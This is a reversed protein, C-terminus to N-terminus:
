PIDTVDPPMADNVQGRQRRRHFLWITWLGALITLEATLLSVCAGMIGRSPILFLGVCAVVVLGLVFPATQQKHLGSALLLMRFSNRIYYLPILWILVSFVPVAERYERGLVGVIVHEGLLTGLVACCLGLLLMLGRLSRGVREFQAPRRGFCHSLVPFFAHPLLAGATGLMLVIKFPAAFTGVVHKSCFQALLLVPLYHYMRLVAGAIGFFVSARLHLRWAAFDFSPRFRIGARKYLLFILVFSGFAYSLSWATCAAVTDDPGGVFFLCGALFSLSNAFTGLALYQFRELGKFVWDCWFSYTVLYLGCGAFTALTEPSLGMLALAVAYLAFLLVGATVRLTLLSNVIARTNGRNRAVERVGYVSIGLDIALWLLYTVSQAVTFVGFSDVQLKRALYMNTVFFVTKGLIESVVSWGFNAVVRGFISKEPNGGDHPHM